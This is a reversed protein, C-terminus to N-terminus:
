AATSRSSRTCARFRPPSRSRSRTARTSAPSSRTSRTTSSSPASGAGSSRPSRNRSTRRRPRSSRSACCACSRAWRSRRRRSSHAPRPRCRSPGAAACSSAPPPSRARMPASAAFASRTSCSTSSRRRTSRATRGSRTSRATATCAHRHRRRRARRRRASRGVRRAAARWVGGRAGLHRRRRRRRRRRHAHAPERESRHAARPRASAALPTLREARAIATALERHQVSVSPFSRSCSGGTSRRPRSTAAARLRRQRGDGAGEPAGPRADARAHRARAAPRGAHRGAGDGACRRVRVLRRCRRRDEALDALAKAYSAAADAFRDTDFDMRALLVWGRGDRPNRALHRVLEDRRAPLSAADDTTRPRQPLGREIRRRIASCRMSVSPSRPCRSPWARVRRWAASRRDSSAAREGAVDALLRREIEERARAYQPETLRGEARERDLDALEGRYIAANMETRRARAPPARRALLGPLAFALALAAMAAAILWFLLADSVPPVNM